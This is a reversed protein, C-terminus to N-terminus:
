TLQCATTKSIMDMFGSLSFRCAFSVCEPPLDLNEICWNGCFKAHRYYLPEVYCTTIHRTCVEDSHKTPRSRDFHM